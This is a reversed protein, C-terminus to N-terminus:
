KNCLRYKLQPLCLNYFSSDVFNNLNQWKVWRDNRLQGANKAKGVFHPDVILLYVGKSGAHLGVICKSSCDKDGGMMIPSGFQEFHKKINDVQDILQRGSSVHIIKSLIDYLQNLVVSVEFSGIWERSGIFTRDKDEVAVLAKQIEDISPVTEKSSENSLVWSCITQLTRYGCGWGRDNFGDCGYHWYEYQGQILYTEGNDPLALDEHVNKLLNTSCNVTM